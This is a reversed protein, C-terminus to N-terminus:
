RNSALRGFDGVLAVSLQGHARCRAQRGLDQLRERLWWLQSSKSTFMRVRLHVSRQLSNGCRCVESPSDQHKSTSHGLLNAPQKRLPARERAMAMAFGETRSENTFVPKVPVSGKTWPKTCGSEVRAGQRRGLRSECWKSRRMSIRDRKVRKTMRM